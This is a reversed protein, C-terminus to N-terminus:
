AFANIEGEIYMVQRMVNVARVSEKGIAIPVKPIVSTNNGRGGRASTEHVKVWCINANMRTFEHCFIRTCGHCLSCKMGWELIRMM